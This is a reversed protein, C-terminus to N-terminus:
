HYPSGRSRFTSVCGQGVRREESRYETIGLIEEPGARVEERVRKFRGARVKLDAVRITDEYSMWLAVHRAAERTLRWNEADNDLERISAIRDLYLDAYAADQYDVLRRVGETAFEHAAEPLQEHIRGLLRRGM